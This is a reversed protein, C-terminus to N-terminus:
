RKNILNDIMSVFGNLSHLVEYTLLEEPFEIQFAEELEIIFTVYSVSDIGCELLDQDSTEKDDIIIGIRTLCDLIIQRVVMNSNNRTM